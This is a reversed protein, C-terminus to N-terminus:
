QNWAQCCLIDISWFKLCLLGNHGLDDIYRTDIHLMSSLPSGKTEHMAVNVFSYVFKRKKTGMHQAISNMYYEHFLWHDCPNEIYLHRWILSSAPLQTRCQLMMLTLHFVTGFKQLQTDSCACNMCRWSSRSMSSTLTECNRFIYSSCWISMLADDQRASSCPAVIIM